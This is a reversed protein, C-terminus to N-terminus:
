GLGRLGGGPAQGDERPSVHLRTSPGQSRSPSLSGTRRAFLQPVFLLALAPRPREGPRGPRLGGGGGAAGGGERDGISLLAEYNSRVNRHRAREWAGMQAWEERSFYVSVDRCAARPQPLSRGDTRGDAGARPPPWRWGGGGAPGRVKPRRGARGAEEEPREQPDRDPNM